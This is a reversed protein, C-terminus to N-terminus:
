VDSSMNIARRCEKWLPYNLLYFSYSHTTKHLRFVRVIVARFTKVENGIECDTVIAAWSRKMESEIECDTVIMAWPFNWRVEWRAIQSLWPEYFNWGIKRMPRENCPCHPNADDKTCRSEKLLSYAVVTKGEWTERWWREWEDVWRM